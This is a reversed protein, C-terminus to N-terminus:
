FIVVSYERGEDQCFNGIVRKSGLLNHLNFIFAM